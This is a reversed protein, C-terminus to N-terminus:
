ADADEEIGKEKNAKKDALGETIAATL